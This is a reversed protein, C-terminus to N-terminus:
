ALSCCVSEYKCVYTVTKNEERTCNITLSETSNSGNGAVSVAYVSIDFTNGCDSDGIPHTFNTWNTSLSVAVGSIDIVYESIPCPDDPLPTWNIVITDCEINSNFMVIGPPDPICYVCLTVGDLLATM